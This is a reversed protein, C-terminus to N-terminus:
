PCGLRYTVIGTSNPYGISPTGMKAAALFGDAVGVVDFDPTSADPALEITTGVAGAATVSAFDLASGQSWVLAFGHSGGRVVVPQGQAVFTQLQPSMEPRDIVLHNSMALDVYTLAVDDGFGALGISGGDHGTDGYSVSSTPALNTSLRDLRIAAGDTTALTYGSSTAAIGRFSGTFGIPAGVPNARADLVQMQSAAVLVFGGAGHVIAIPNSSPDSMPHTLAAANTGCTLAYSADRFCGVYNAGDSAISNFDGLVGDVFGGSNPVFQGDTTFRGAAVDPPFRGHAASFMLVVDNDLTALRPGWALEVSPVTTAPGVVCAAIAGADADGAIFADLAVSANDGCGTVLGLTIIAFKM